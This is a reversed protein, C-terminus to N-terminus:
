WWQWPQGSGRLTHAGVGLVLGWGQESCVLSCTSNCIYVVPVPGSSQNVPDSGGCSCFLVCWAALGMRWGKTGGLMRSKNSWTNSAGPVGWWATGWGGAGKTATAADVGGRIGQRHHHGGHDQDDGPGPQHGACVCGPSFCPFPRPMGLPMSVKLICPPIRCHSHLLIAPPLCVRAGPLACTTTTTSTIAM